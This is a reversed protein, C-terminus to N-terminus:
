DGFDHMVTGCPCYRGHKEYSYGSHNCNKNEPPHGMRRFKAEADIAVVVTTEASVCVALHDGIAHVLKEKKEQLVAESVGEERATLLDALFHGVGTTLRSKLEDKEDPAM